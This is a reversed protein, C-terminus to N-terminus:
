SLLVKFDFDSEAFHHLLTFSSVKTGGSQQTQGSSSHIGADRAYAPPPGQHMHKDMPPLDGPPYYNDYNHPPPM